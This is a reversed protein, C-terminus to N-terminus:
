WEARSMVTFDFIHRVSCWFKSCWGCSWVARTLIHWLAYGGVCSPYVWTPPCSPVTVIEGDLVRICHTWSHHRDKGVSRNISWSYVQAYARGTVTENASETRPLASLCFFLGDGRGRGLRIFGNWWFSFIFIASWSLSATSPSEGVAMDSFAPILRVSTYWTRSPLGTFM